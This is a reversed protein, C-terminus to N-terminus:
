EIEALMAIEYQLSSSMRPIVWVAYSDSASQFTCPSSLPLDVKNNFNVLGQLKDVVCIYQYISTTARASVSV